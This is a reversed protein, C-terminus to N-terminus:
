MEETRQGKLQFLSPHRKKVEPALIIFGNRNRSAKSVHPGNISSSSILSCGIVAKWFPWQCFSFGTSIPLVFVSVFVFGFVIVNKHGDWTWGADSKTAKFSMLASFIWAASFHKQKSQNKTRCTCGWLFTHEKHKGKEVLWNRGQLAHHVDGSDEFLVSQPDQVFVQGQVFIGVAPSHKSLYFGDMWGDMWRDTEGDM